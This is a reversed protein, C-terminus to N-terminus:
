CWSSFDAMFWPTLPHGWNESSLNILSTPVQVSLEDSGRSNALKFFSHSLLLDKNRFSSHTHSNTVCCYGKSAAQGLTRVQVSYHAMLVAFISLHSCQCTTSNDRTSTVWCGRTDWHGSGNQGHEWYVCHVKERPGPTVSQTLLFFFHTHTQPATAWFHQGLALKHLAKRFLKHVWPVAGQLGLSPGPSLGTGCGGSWGMQVWMNSSLLSQPGSTRLTRTPSLPLYSMRCCSTPTKRCCVGTHRM